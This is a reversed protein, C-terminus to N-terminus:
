NDDDEGIIVDILGKAKMEQANLYWQRRENATYEEETINTNAVVYDKIMNDVKQNQSMTDKVSLSEGELVTYGSHFLAFSFPYCFKKVNPNKNGACIFLTGMSCSYGMIYIELPKKYGDIINCLILGDAVSGGPTSLILKVPALSDDEEFDKLPLIVKEVIDSDVSNNFIITRKDNLNHFYQYMVPDLSSNEEVLALFGDNM